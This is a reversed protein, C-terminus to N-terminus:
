SAKGWCVPKDTGHKESLDRTANPDTSRFAGLVASGLCECSQKEGWRRLAFSASRFCLSVVSLRIDWCSVVDRRSTHKARRHRFEAQCTQM